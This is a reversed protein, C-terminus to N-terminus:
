IGGKTRSERYLEVIKELLTIYDGHLYYSCSKVKKVVTDVLVLILDDFSINILDKRILQSVVKATYSADVVNLFERLTKSDNIKNKICSYVDGINSIEKMKGVEILDEIAILSTLQLYKGLSYPYFLRGYIKAWNPLSNTCNSRIAARIIWNVTNTYKLRHFRGLNAIQKVLHRCINEIDHYSGSNEPVKNSLISKYKIRDPVSKNYLVARTIASNGLVMLYNIDSTTLNPAFQIANTISVSIYKNKLGNPFKMVLKRIFKSFNHKFTYYSIGVSSITITKSM